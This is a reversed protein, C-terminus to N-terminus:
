TTRDLAERRGSIHCLSVNYNRVWIMADYIV